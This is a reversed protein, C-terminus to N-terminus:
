SIRRVIGTNADVEVLDGDKLVRTARQTGIVCPKGMERSVVAAHSLMGGQDTVIASAKKCLPVFEPTTSEAVLVDGENMKAIVLAIAGPDTLMPAIVVRGTAKGKNAVVGKLEGQFEFEPHFEEWLRKSEELSFVHFNGDFACGYYDRRGELVGVNPKEGRFLAEIDSMFLFQGVGAPLGFQAVIGGLFTQYVGHDHMYANLIDRAEFKLRGFDEMAEALEPDKTREYEQFMGESYPFDTIGYFNQFRRLEPILAMAETETMTMPGNAFRPIIERNAYEVYDRLEKAWERYRTPNGLLEAGKANCRKEGELNLFTDWQGEKYLCLPHGEGLSTTALMETHLCTLQGRVKFMPKYDAPRPTM